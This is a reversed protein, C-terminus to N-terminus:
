VSRPNQHSIATDSPIDDSEEEVDWLGCEGWGFTVIQERIAVLKSSFIFRVAEDGPNQKPCFTNQTQKHSSM